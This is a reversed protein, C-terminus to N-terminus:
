YGKQYKSDKLGDQINKKINKIFKNKKKKTIQKNVYILDKPTTKKFTNLSEIENIYYEEIRSIYDILNNNNSRTKALNKYKITWNRQSNFSLFSLVFILFLLSINISNFIKHIFKLNFLPINKKNIQNFKNFNKNLSNENEFINM